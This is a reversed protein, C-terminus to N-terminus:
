NSQSYLNARDSSQSHSTNGNARESQGPAKLFKPESQGPGIPPALPRSAKLVETRIARSWDAELPRSSKSVETRIARSWDPSPPRNDIDRHYFRQGVTNLGPDKAWCYKSRSVKKPIIEGTCTGLLSQDSGFGGSNGTLWFM